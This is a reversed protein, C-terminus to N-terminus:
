TPEASSFARLAHRAAEIEAQLESVATDDLKTLDGERVASLIGRLRAELRLMSYGAAVSALANAHVAIQGGARSRLARRLAPM